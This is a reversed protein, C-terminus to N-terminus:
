IKSIYEFETFPLIDSLILNCGSSAAENVAHGFGEGSSVCIAVGCEDLLEDYEKQKLTSPYLKIKSHLEVPLQVNMRTSDYVIHLEPLKTHDNLMRYADVIIQPHRFINKGVLVIAKHYNKKLSEGKAISSWGIYKANWQKFIEVAHYTKCWIEDLKGFYPEWTKYTWEPNPIWINKGAFTFLSPNLVEFFVNIDAEPCEPHSHHVRNFVATNDVISWM